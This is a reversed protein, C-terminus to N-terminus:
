PHHPLVWLDSDRIATVDFHRKGEILQPVKNTGIIKTTDPIAIIFDVATPRRKGLDDSVWQQLFPRDESTGARRSRIGKVVRSAVPGGPCDQFDLFQIESETTATATVSTDKCNELVAGYRGVRFSLERSQSWSKGDRWLHVVVHYEDIRHVARRVAASGEASPPSDLEFLTIFSSQAFLLPHVWGVVFHQRRSNLRDVNIQDGFTQRVSPGLQHRSIYFAYITGDTVEDRPVYRFSTMGPNTPGQAPVADVREWGESYEYQSRLLKDKKNLLGEVMLNLGERAFRAEKLSKFPRAEGMEVEFSSCFEVNQFWRLCGAELSALLANAKKSSGDDARTVAVCLMAAVVAGIRAM